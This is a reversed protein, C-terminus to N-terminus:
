ANAKEQATLTRNYVAINQLWIGVAVSNTLIPNTANTLDIWVSEIAGTDQRKYTLKISGTYNAVNLQLNDQARTVAATTTKILSSPYTAQEIQYTYATVDLGNTASGSGIGGGINTSQGEASINFTASILFRANSIDIVNGSIFAPIDITFRPTVTKANLDVLAYHYNAGGSGVLMAANSSGTKVISSMTIIPQWATSATVQSLRSTQSSNNSTVTYGQIGSLSDSTGRVANFTSFNSLNYSNSLWNTSQKELLLGQNIWTSGNFSYDFRPTDPAADVIRPNSNSFYTAATLRSLTLWSPLSPSSVFNQQNIIVPKSILGGVMATNGSWFKAGGAIRTHKGKIM